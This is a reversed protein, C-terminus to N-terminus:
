PRSGRRRSVMGVNVMGREGDVMEVKRPLPGTEVRM